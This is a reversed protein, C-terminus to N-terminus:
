DCCGRKEKFGAKKDRAHPEYAETFRTLLISELVKFGICLLSIGRCNVCVQPDGKKYFPLLISVRWDDSIQETSWISDPLLEILDVLMEGSAKYLEPPIDDCGGARYARLGEIADRIERKTPAEPDVQNFAQPLTHATPLLTPTTETSLLQEYHEKWREMRKKTDTIM